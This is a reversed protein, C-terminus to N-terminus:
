AQLKAKGVPFKKKSKQHKNIEDLEKQKFENLKLFTYKRYRVPMRYAEEYSINNGYYCIENLQDFLYKRYEPTLGFFRFM